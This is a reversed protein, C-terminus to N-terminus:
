QRVIEFRNHFGGNSGMRSTSTETVEGKGDARKNEGAVIRLKFSNTANVLTLVGEFSVFGTKSPFTIVNGNIEAASKIGSAPKWEDGDFYEVTWHKQASNTNRIQFQYRVSTGAPIESHSNVTYLWYDGKWPATVYPEGASSVKRNFFEGNAGSTKDVSWYELFSTGYVDDRIAKGMTGEEKSKGADSAFQDTVAAKGEKTFCWDALLGVQIRKVSLTDSWGYEDSYVKIKGSSSDESLANVRLVNKGPEMRGADTSFPGELVAVDLPLNTTVTFYTWSEDHFITKEMADFTVEPSVSAQVLVLVSEINYEKNVFRIKATREGGSNNRDYSFGHSTWEVLAKTQPQGAAPRVWPESCEIEYDVNSQVQVDFMGPASEISMSNGDVLSIFPKLEQGAASQIVNIVYHTIGSAIDVKARRTVSLPSEDCSLSVEYENGATGSDLSLSLWDADASITFDNDSKVKFVAPAEPSGEFVILNDNVGSVSIDATVISESGGAICQITPQWDSSENKDTLTLRWSATNPAELAGGNCKWNAACILRFDVKDTTNEYKVTKSVQVNAAANAGGPFADTYIVPEGTEATVSPIGAIKWESGDRYEMRWYKMCSASARAEFSIKLITGKAVPIDSLFECYDGPWVGIVRPDNSSLDLKYAGNVDITSKDISVYKITGSGSDSRILGESPWSESYNNGSVSIKWKIPFGEVDVSVGNQIVPVTESTEVGEAVYKLTLRAGRVSNTNEAASFKLTDVMSQGKSLSVNLWELNETAYDPDPAIEYEWPVNSTVLLKKSGASVPLEVRAASKKLFEDSPSQSIVIRGGVEIDKAGDNAVIVWESERPATQDNYRGVFFCFMGDGKGSAPFPKIWDYGSADAPEIRWSMDSVVLYKPSPMQQASEDPKAIDLYEWCTYEASYSAPNGLSLVECGAADYVELEPATLGTDIRCGPVISTLLCLVSWLSKKRM